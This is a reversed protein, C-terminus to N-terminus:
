ASPLRVIFAAGGSASSVARITGGHAEVIARTLALGLGTGKADGRTTYFREFLKPLQEAEIGPGSDIISVELERELVTVDVRIWGAEGAFSLANLILNGFARELRSPVGQM